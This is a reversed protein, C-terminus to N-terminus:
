FCQPLPDAFVADAPVPSAVLSATLAPGNVPSALILRELRLKAAAASRKQVVPVCELACSLSNFGGTAVSRSEDVKSQSDALAFRMNMRASFSVAIEAM